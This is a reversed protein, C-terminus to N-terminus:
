RSFDWESAFQASALPGETGRPLRRTRSGLKTISPIQTSVKSAKILDLSVSSTKKTWFAPALFELVPSCLDAMMSFIERASAAATELLLSAAPRTLTVATGEDGITILGFPTDCGEGLAHGYNM